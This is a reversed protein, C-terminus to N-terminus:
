SPPRFGGSGKDGGSSKGFGFRSLGNGSSGNSSEGSSSRGFSPSGGGFKFSPKEGETSGSTSGQGTSPPGFRQFQFGGPSQPAGGQPPSGGGFAPFGGQPPTFVQQNSSKDKDKEKDKDKSGKDGESSKKQLAKWRLYEDATLFGDNNLDMRAFEAMDRSDKKWEYLGVQGDNDWQKDLKQFWDPLDKPLKGARYIVPRAEEVPKPRDNNNNSSDNSPKKEDKEPKDSTSERKAFQATLYAKYEDFNIFGNKNTDWTDRELQLTESMEDPSLEGDNNKDRRRFAEEMRDNDNRGSSPGGPGGSTPPGKPQQTNSDTPTSTPAATPPAGGPAGGFMASAKGLAEKFQTRTITEGTLGLKPGAFQFFMKKGADLESVNIVDKGGSLKDFQEDPTGRSGRSPFQSWTLSPLVLIGALLVFFFHIRRM